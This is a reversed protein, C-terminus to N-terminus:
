CNILSVCHVSYLLMMPQVFSVLVEWSITMKIENVIIHHKVSIYFMQRFMQEEQKIFIMWLYIRLHIAKETIIQFILYKPYTDSMYGLLLVWCLFYMYLKFNEHKFVDIMVYCIWLSVISYQKLHSFCFAKQKQSLRITKKFPVQYFTIGDMDDFNFILLVM